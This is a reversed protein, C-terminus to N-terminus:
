QMYEKKKKKKSTPNAKDNLSSGFEQAWAIRSSWSGLYCPSSSQEETDMKHEKYFNVYNKLLIKITIHYKM